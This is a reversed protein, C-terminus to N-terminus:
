ILVWPKTSGSCPLIGGGRQGPAAGCTTLGGDSSSPPAGHLDWEGAVCGNVAGAAPAGVAMQSWLQLPLATLGGMPVCGGQLQLPM